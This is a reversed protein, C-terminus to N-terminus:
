AGAAGAGRRVAGSRGWRGTWRDRELEGSSSWGFDRGSVCLRSHGDCASGAGNAVGDFGGVEGRELEGRGDFEDAGFLPECRGMEDEVGGGPGLLDDVLHVVCQQGWPRLASAEEPHSGHVWCRAGISCEDPEPWEDALVFVEEDTWRESVLCWGQSPEDSEM